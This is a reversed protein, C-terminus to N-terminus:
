VPALLLLILSQQYPFAPATTIGNNEPVGEQCKAMRISVLPFAPPKTSATELPVAQECLVSVEYSNVYLAGENIQIEAIWFERNDM